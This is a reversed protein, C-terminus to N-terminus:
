IGADLGGDGDGGGFRLRRILFLSPLCLLLFVFMVVGVVFLRFWVYM